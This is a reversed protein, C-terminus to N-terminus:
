DLSWMGVLGKHRVRKRAEALAAEAKKFQRIAPILKGVQRMGGLEETIASLTIADGKQIIKDLETSLKKFSSFLGIFKGETDTLNIGLEKLMEITGRRQIRTFITRLGTAITEASERTTSRVATFVSIFEKLAEIPEQTDKAALAWVGGARRIAAIMDQSEVAFKKSVRNLAGLVAESESAAINFQNLSAILGEATNSMEGFTPALSSRAIANM